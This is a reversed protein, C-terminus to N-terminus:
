SEPLKLLYNRQMISFGVLCSVLHFEWQKERSQQQVADGDGPKKSCILRKRRRTSGSLHWFLAFMILLLVLAVM